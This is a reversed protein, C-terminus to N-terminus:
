KFGLLDRPIDVEIGISNNESVCPLFVHGLGSFALVCELSDLRIGGKNEPVAVHTMTPWVPEDVLAGLAFQLGALSACGLCSHTTWDVVSAYKDSVNSLVDQGVMDVM